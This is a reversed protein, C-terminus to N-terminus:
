FDDLRRIARLIIAILAINGPLPLLAVGIRAASGPEIRGLLLFAGIDIATAILLVLIWGVSHLRYM